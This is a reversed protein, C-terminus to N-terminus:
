CPQSSTPQMNSTPCKLETHNSWNTMQYRSPTTDLNHTHSSSLITQPESVKVQTLRKAHSTSGVRWSHWVKSIHTHSIASGGYSHHTSSSQKIQIFGCMLETLLSLWCLRNMNKLLNTLQLVTTTSTNSQQLEFMILLSFSLCSLLFQSGCAFVEKDQESKDYSQRPLTQVKFM